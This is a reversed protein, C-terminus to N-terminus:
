RTLIFIDECRGLGIEKVSCPEKFHIHFEQKKFERQATVKSSPFFAGTGGLNQSEIADMIINLPEYKPNEFSIVKSIEVVPAIFNLIYPFWQPEKWLGTVILLFQLWMDFMRDSMRVTANLRWSLMQFKFRTM